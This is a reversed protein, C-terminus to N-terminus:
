FTRVTITYRAVDYSYNAYVIVVREAMWEFSKITSDGFYTFPVQADLINNVDEILDMFTASVQAAASVPAVYFDAYFTAEFHRRVGSFTAQATESDRSQYWNQILVQLLPLDAIADSIEDFDQSSALAPAASLTTEIASNWTKMSVTAM